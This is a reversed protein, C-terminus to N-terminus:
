VYSLFIKDSSEVIRGLFARPFLLYLRLAKTDTVGYIELCVELFKVCGSEKALHAM